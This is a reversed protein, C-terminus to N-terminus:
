KRYTKNGEKGRAPFRLWSHLRLALSRRPWPKYSDTLDFFPFISFYKFNAPIGPNPLTPYIASILVLFQWMEELEPWVQPLVNRCRIRAKKAGPSGTLQSASQQLPPPDSNVRFEFKPFFTEQFNGIFGFTIFWILGDVECARLGMIRLHEKSGVM